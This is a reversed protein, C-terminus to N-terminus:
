FEPSKKEISIECLHLESVSSEINLLSKRILMSVAFMDNM